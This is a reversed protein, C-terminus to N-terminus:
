ITLVTSATTLTNQDMDHDSNHNQQSFGNAALHLKDVDQHLSLDANQGDNKVDM